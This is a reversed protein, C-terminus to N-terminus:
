PPADKRDTGTQDSADQDLGNFGGGVALLLTVRQTTAQALLDAMQQRATLLTAEATLMPIQGSLGLRYREKALAFARGASDLAKQQQTRQEALSAVQTLADAAQRVAGVVAQNYDAVSADLDATAKAYHARILGADFIPLHIAPGAGTTLAGATFLNSLGVAQVGAAAFLDINPYFDAHAAERGQLSADVRAKAAVIDPRRALLDAPLAAPLPLATELAPAPRTIGGYANAGQGILAAIAHVGLDRQTEAQKVAINAMALLAKAQELSAENELGAKVRSQTLDLIAQRESVTEHAIDVNQWALLLSVYTQAFSGALALRAAAADLAAAQSLNRDRAILAAQKGWFDLSWRLKAQVDGVWRWSGGYPRPLVYADSLLERELSGDINVQPYGAAEGAALEAQAARIRALASHLTPNSRLLETILRDLQPDGFARWWDDQLQPAAQPGLGLTQPAVESEQPVTTPAAICGSLLLAFALASGIRSKGM